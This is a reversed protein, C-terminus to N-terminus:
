RVAQWTNLNWFEGAFSSPALGEITADLNVVQTPAYLFLMPTDRAIQEYLPGYATMRARLECRAASNGAELAQQVGANTYGTVNLGYGPEIESEDWFYRQDPDLPINFHVLALDYEQLFVRTLFLTRDTLKLVVSVGVDALQARILQATTESRPDEAQLWLSVELPKGDKDLIGDGDSDRWGASALARRAGAADFEPQRVDSAAWFQGLMSSEIGFQQIAQAAAIEPRNLASSLARRVRVDDFPPRKTNFALAYFENLALPLNLKGEIPTDSVLLDARGESVAAAAARATPFIRWTWDVIQPAGNWYNTNRRFTLADDTWAKLVLPGTGILDENAVDALGKDQLRHKPLIAMTGIYTLAACYPESFTVRVTRGDPASIEQIAGFDAAPIVRVDPDSLAELTFVVDDATLPVGDHWKVNRRLTFEFTKGDESVQWREALGPLLHGDQPDVKLLSDYLASSVFKPLTTIERLPAGVGAITIAGGPGRTVIPSPTVAPALLVSGTPKPASTEQLTPTPVSLTAVPSNVVPTPDAECAALLVFIVLLIFKKVDSRHCSCLLRWLSIPHLCEFTWM